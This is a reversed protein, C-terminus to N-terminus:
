RQPAGEMRRVRCRESRVAEAQKNMWSELDAGHLDQPAALQVVAESRYLPHVFHNVGLFASGLVMIVFIGVAAVTKFANHDALKRAMVMEQKELLRKVQELNERRSRLNERQQTIDERGKEVAVQIDHFQVRVQRLSKAQRLLRHRHFAAQKESQALTEPSAPIPNKSKNKQWASKESELASTKQQLSLLQSEFSNKALLSEEQLKKLADQAAFLQSALDNRQGELMQMQKALEKVKQSEKGSLKLTPASKETAELKKPLAASRARGAPHDQKAARSPKAIRM